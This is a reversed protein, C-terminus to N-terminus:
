EGGNSIIKDMRIDYKNTDIKECICKKYTIGIKLEKYNELFRDYYGKGYGVRNGEKDFCVGPVICISNEFDTVVNKNEPELLGFGGKKLEDLTRIYYFNINNAECKPVAVKKGNKLSYEILKITDVEDNLSVYTLVLRCEKYEQLNIIQKFIENAYKEKDKININKRIKLYKGRLIKKNM